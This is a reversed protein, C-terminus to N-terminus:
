TCYNTYKSCPYWLFTSVKKPQFFLYARICVLIMWARNECTDYASNFARLDTWNTSHHLYHLKLTVMEQIEFLGLHLLPLSRAMCLQLHSGLVRITSHHGLRPVHHWAHRPRSCHLAPVHCVAEALSIDRWTALSNWEFVDLSLLLWNYISHSSVWGQVDRIGM